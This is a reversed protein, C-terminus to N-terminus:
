EGPYGQLVAAIQPHYLTEPDTDRIRLQDFVIPDRRTREFNREEFSKPRSAAIREIPCATPACRAGAETAWAALAACPLGYDARCGAEDALEACYFGSRALCDADAPTLAGTRPFPQRHDRILLAAPRERLIRLPADCYRERRQTCDASALRKWTFLRECPLGYRLWCFRQDLGPDPISAPGPASLAEPLPREAPPAPRPAIPMTVINPNVRIPRASDNPPHDTFHVQGAADVWRYMAATAVGPQGVILCAVLALIAPGFPNASM